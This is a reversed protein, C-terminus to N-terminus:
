DKINTNSEVFEDFRKKTIRWTNGMKFAKIKGQKIYLLITRRTVSLIEMLDNVSYIIEKNEM